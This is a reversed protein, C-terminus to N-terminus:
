IFYSDKPFEIKVHIIVWIIAAIYIRLMPSDGFEVFFLVTVFVDEILYWLIEIDCLTTALKTSLLVHGLLYLREGWSFKNRPIAPYARVKVGYLHSRGGRSSNRQLEIVRALFHFIHFNKVWTKRWFNIGDTFLPYSANLHKM